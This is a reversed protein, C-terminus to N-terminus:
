IDTRICVYVIYLYLFVCLTCVDSFCQKRLTVFATRIDEIVPFDSVFEDLNEFPPKEKQEDSSKYVIEMCDDNDDIKGRNKLKLEDIERRLNLGKNKQNWRPVPIRAM